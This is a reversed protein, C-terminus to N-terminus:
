VPRISLYRARRGTAGSVRAMLRQSPLVGNIWSTLMGSQDAFLDIEVDLKFAKVGRARELIAAHGHGDGFGHFRTAASNDTGRGAICRGGGCGIGGAGANATEYQDRIALDRQAFQCLGHDMAGLHQLNLAIEIIAHPQHLVNGVMRRDGDDVRDVREPQLPLFGGGKFDDLRQATGGVIVAQWDAIRAIDGSVPYTVRFGDARWVM